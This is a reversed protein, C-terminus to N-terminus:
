RRADIDKGGGFRGHTGLCQDISTDGHCGNTGTVNAIGIGVFGFESECDGVSGIGVKIIYCLMFTYTYEVHVFVGTTMIELRIFNFLENSM